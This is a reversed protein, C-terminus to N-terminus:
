TETEIVKRLIRATELLTTTQLHQIRIAICLKEIRRELETSVTGQAGVIIPVVEVTKM